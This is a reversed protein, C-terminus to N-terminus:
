HDVLNKPAAVPASKDNRWRARVSPARFSHLFQIQTELNSEQLTCVAFFLISSM